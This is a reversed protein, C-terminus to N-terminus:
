VLIFSQDHLTGTYNTLHIEIDNSDMIDNGNVDIQLNATSGGAVDIRAESHPSGPTGDFAATNM